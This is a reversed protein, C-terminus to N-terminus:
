KNIATFNNLTKQIYKINGVHDECCFLIPTFGKILPLDSFLINTYLVQSETIRLHTVYNKKMMIKNKM